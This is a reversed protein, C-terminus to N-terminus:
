IRAYKEGGKCVISGVPVGVDRAIVPCKVRLLFFIAGDHASLTEYNAQGKAIIMDADEFRQRFGASCDALVTGPADSGNPLIEAVEGIGAAIADERTADNLVPAGRVGYCVPVDMAEILVRDFVTEGANDGLYLVRKAKGLARRFADLHDIAFPQSLVGQVSEWLADSTRPMGDVAFDIINGAIALRVACELPDDAKAVEAKLRPYLGLAQRTSEAKIKAYPDAVGVQARVIRHVIQGIEPPSCSMDIGQLEAMVRDLVVRQAHEDAGVM